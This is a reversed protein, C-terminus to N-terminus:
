EDVEEGGGLLDALVLLLDEITEQAEALLQPGNTLFEHDALEKETYLVYRYITNTEDWAPIAASIITPTITQGVVVREEEGELSVYEFIGKQDDIVRVHPDENSTPKYTEGNAFDFITVQYRWQEPVSTHHTTFTEKKLWGLELDPNEVLKNTQDYIPFQYGYGSEEEENFIEEDM